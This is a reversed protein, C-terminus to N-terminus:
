PFAEYRKRRKAQKKEDRANEFETSIVTELKKNKKRIQRFSIFDLLMLTFVIILYIVVMIRM